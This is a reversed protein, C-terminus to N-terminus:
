ISIKDFTKVVYNAANDLHEELAKYIKEDNKEKLAKIIKKM